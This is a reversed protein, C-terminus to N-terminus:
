KELQVNIEDPYVMGMERAKSEVQYNLGIMYAINM